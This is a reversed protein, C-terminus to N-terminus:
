HCFRSDFDYKHAQLLLKAHNDKIFFSHSLFLVSNKYLPFDGAM